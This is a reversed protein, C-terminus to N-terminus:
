APIGPVPFGQTMELTEAKARAKVAEDHPAFLVAAIIQSLTRVEAPGFGRTTIAASGLRVGSPNNPPQPDYPIANRNVTIGVDDLAREATKGDIGASQLDVLMMHTDTGGSVIRLGADQLASAMVHANAVVAAAYQKFEPQLAEHLAVAKAAIVHMLPGGQM